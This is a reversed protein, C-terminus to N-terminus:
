RGRGGGGSTGSFRNWRDKAMRKKKTNKDRIEQLKASWVVEEGKEDEDKSRRERAEKAEEVIQAHEAAHQRAHQFILQNRRNRAQIIKKKLEKNLM